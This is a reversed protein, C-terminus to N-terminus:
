AIKKKMYKENVSYLFERARKILGDSTTENKKRINYKMDAFVTEIINFAPTSPCNFVM